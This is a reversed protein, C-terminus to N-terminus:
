PQPPADCAGEYGDVPDAVLSEPVMFTVTRWGPRPKGLTAGSIALPPPGNWYYLEAAFGIQDQAIRLREPDTNVEGLLTDDIEDWWDFTDKPLSSEASERWGTLTLWILSQVREEFTGQRVLQELAQANRQRIRYPVAIGAVVLLEEPSLIASLYPLIEIRSLGDRETLPTDDDDIFGHYALALAAQLREGPSEEAEGRRADHAASVVDQRTDRGLWLPVQLRATRVDIM